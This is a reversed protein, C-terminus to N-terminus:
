SEGRNSVFEDDYFLAVEGTDEHAADLIANCSRIQTGAPCRRYM